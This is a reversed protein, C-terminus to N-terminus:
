PTITRSFTGRPSRVRPSHGRPHCKRHEAKLDTPTVHTYIETTSINVHGLMRQILAIDAGGKLMHTAFAHRIAHCALTVGPKVAKVYKAVVHGLMAKSLRGGGPIVFLAPERPGAVDHGFRKLMIPRAENMYRTLFQVASNGVPLTRGKGGKGNRIVVTREALNIDYINLMAAESRRIATSYLLELIARDRMGTLTGIDPRFLIAEMEQETPINKPLGHPQKQFVLAASPDFALVKRQVLFGFFIKVTALHGNITTLALTKGTHIHGRGMIWARFEDVLGRTVAEVENVFRSKLFAVFERMHSKRIHQTSPSYGKAEIWKLYEDQSEILTM